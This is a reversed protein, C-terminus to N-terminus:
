RVPWSALMADMFSELVELDDPPLTTFDISLEPFTYNIKWDLKKGAVKEKVMIDYTIKKLDFKGAHKKISEFLKEAGPIIIDKYLKIGEDLPPYLSVTNEYVFLEEQAILYIRVLSECKKKLASPGTLKFLKKHDEWVSNADYKKNILMVHLIEHLFTKKIEEKSAASEKVVGEPKITVGGLIRKIPIRIGAKLKTKDGIDAKNIYILGTTPFYHGSLLERPTPHTAIYINIPEKKTLFKFAEKLKARIRLDEMREEKSSAAPISWLDQIVEGIAELIRDKATKIDKSPGEDDMELTSYAFRIFVKVVDPITIESPEEVTVERALESVSKIGYEDPKKEEESPPEQFWYTEESKQITFIEGSTHGQDDWREGHKAKPEISEAKKLEKKPQTYIQGRPMQIVKNPVRDAQQKYIDSAQGIKAKAQIMGSKFLRQVAQNGITRQLHLIQDIPSNISPSSESKRVKSATIARKRDPTNTTIKTRVNMSIFWDIRVQEM